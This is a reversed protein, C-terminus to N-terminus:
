LACALFSVEHSNTAYKCYNNRLIHSSEPLCPYWLRYLLTVEGETDPSEVSEKPQVEEPNDSMEMSNGSNVINKMAPDTIDLDINSEDLDEYKDGGRRFKVLRNFMKSILNCYQEEPKCLNTLCTYRHSNLWLFVM